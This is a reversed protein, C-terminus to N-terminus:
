NKCKKEDEKDNTMKGDISWKKSDNSLIVFRNTLKHNILNNLVFSPHNKLIFDDNWCMETMKSELDNFSKKCLNKTKKEIKKRTDTPKPIKERM